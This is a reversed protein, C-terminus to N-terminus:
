MVVCRIKEQEMKEVHTVEGKVHVLPYFEKLDSPIEIKSFKADSSVLKIESLNAYKVKIKSDKIHVSELGDCLDTGGGEYWKFGHTELISVVLKKLIPNSNLKTPTVVINM